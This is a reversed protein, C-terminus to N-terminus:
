SPKDPHQEKVLVPATEELYARAETALAHTERADGMLLKRYHDLEDAMRKITAEARTLGHKYGAHFGARYVHVQYGKYQDPIMPEKLEPRRAARLANFADYTAQAAPSLETM